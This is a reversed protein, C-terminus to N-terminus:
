MFQATLTYLRTLRKQTLNMFLFIQNAKLIKSANKISGQIFITKEIKMQNKVSMNDIFINSITDAFFFVLMCIGIVGTILVLFETGDNRKGVNVNDEIVSLYKEELDKNM